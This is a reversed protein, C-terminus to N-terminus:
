LTHEISVQYMIIVVNRAPHLGQRSDGGQKQWMEFMLSNKQSSQIRSGIM